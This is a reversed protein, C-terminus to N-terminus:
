REHVHTVRTGSLTSHDRELVFLWWNFFDLSANAFGVFFFCRIAVQCPCATLEAGFRRLSLVGAALHQLQQLQLM